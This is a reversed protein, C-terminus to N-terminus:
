QGMRTTWVNGTREAEAVVMKDRAVALGIEGSNFVRLSRNARHFHAVAFPEDSKRKTRPDLRQAWICRFSDRSSIFYIVGDDPSWRILDAQLGLPKWQDKAPPKGDVVPAILVGDGTPEQAIAWRGDHSIHAQFVDRPRNLFPVAVNTAIDVLEIGSPSATTAALVARGDNSWDWVISKASDLNRAPGGAWSVVYCSVSPFLGARSMYIVQKGDMSIAPRLDFASTNSLMRKTGSPLDMAWIHSGNAQATSYVLKTGDVSISPFGENAADQTLRVPEGTVKGHRADLPFSWLDLDTEENSVVMTGDRAVSPSKSSGTGSTIQEIEGLSWPKRHLKAQWVHTRGRVEAEALLRDGPLWAHLAGQRVAPLATGSELEVREAPGGKRDIVWFGSETSNDRERRGIFLIYQGDPSWIPMVVDTFEPALKIPTAGPLRINITYANRTVLSSSAYLIEAGDPSFRPRDWGGNVVLRPEGGLSSILYIGGGNQASRYVIETGDPSFSPQYEDAPDHTIRVPDGGRYQVWIDLGSDGARNSAYAILKGDPSIAPDTTLGGDFTLQELSLPKPSAPNSHRPWLLWGGAAASVVAAASIAGILLVRKGSERAVTSSPSLRGSDSETQLEELTLKLDLMSQFRRNPDKRLCRLVVRDFEGPVGPAAQNMPAPEKAIVAALTSARSEGSFARQGTCMEYMVAGLSFIDTRADVAKGEAQEPSMYPVSGVVMGEATQAQVSRTVEDPGLAGEDMLKALGFDLLKVRGNEAIMVNSPKMDRHVIGATHAAALADAIQIAYQLVDGFRLGKHPIAQELTKGPVYEMVLYDIHDEAGIEYITIINPHNLASAARAEQFFRQKRVADSVKEPALVKIAVLRGLRPDRAKYVEGMGGAGIKELIEYHGLRGGIMALDYRLRGAPLRSM